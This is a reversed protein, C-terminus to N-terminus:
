PLQAAKRRRNHMATCGGPRPWGFGRHLLCVPLLGHTRSGRPRLLAGSCTFFRCSPLEACLPLTGARCSSPCLDVAWSRAAAHASVGYSAWSWSCLGKKLPGLSFFCGGAGREAVGIAGCVQALRGSSAESANTQLSTGRSASARPAPAGAGGAGGGAAAAASGNAGAVVAAGEWASEKAVAPPGHTSPDKIVGGDDLVM